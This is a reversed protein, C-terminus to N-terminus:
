QPPEFKEIDTELREVLQELNALMDDLQSMRDGLVGEIDAELGALNLAALVAQPDLEPQPTEVPEPKPDSETM